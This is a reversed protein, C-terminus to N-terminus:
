SMNGALDVYKKDIVWTHSDYSVKWKASGQSGVIVVRDNTTFPYNRKFSYRSGPPFKDNIIGITRYASAGLDVYRKEVAWTQGRYKVEWVSNGQVGVIIIADNKKFPYGWSSPFDFNITGIPHNLVVSASGIETSGDYSVANDDMVPQQDEPTTLSRSHTPDLDVAALPALNGSPTNSALEYEFEPESEVVSRAYSTEAYSTMNDLYRQLMFGNRGLDGELENKSLRAQLKAIESLIEEKSQQL